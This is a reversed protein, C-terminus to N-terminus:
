PGVVRVSFRSHRLKLGFEGLDRSVRLGLLGVWCVYPAVLRVGNDVLGSFCLTASM